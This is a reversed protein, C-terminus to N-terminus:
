LVRLMTQAKNQTEQWEDFPISDKLVGGGIYIFVQNNAMQLCRLNVYLDCSNSKNDIVGCYGTYYSRNYCENKIIFEKAKDTPFGCVAPTPHLKKILSFLNTDEKLEASIDTCLHVVEGARITKTESLNLQSVYPSISNIIVDTVIKQEEIEKKGWIIPQQDNFIQTGALSMTTIKGVSYNILKEPTAALWTGVKPHSFLYCFASRYGQLIRMFVEIPTGYYSIAVKRSLVVKQFADKEMQQIAKKVLNVHNQQEFDTFPAEKKSNLVYNTPEYEFLYRVDARLIVPKENNLSFPVLIFGKQSFSNDFVCVNDDMQQFIEVSTSNPNRFAVFPIELNYLETIKKQINNM